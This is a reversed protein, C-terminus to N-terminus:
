LIVAEILKIGDNINTELAIAFVDSFDVTSVRAVGNDSSILRDGKNVSGFVKVPVRGKLAIYIGGDLDKNMMFAPNESIVGIARSGLKCATVEKEGGVMVVTGIDYDADALYKEALDAYQAETATGHFKNAYVDGTANRAVISSPTITGSDSISGSYNLGSVVLTQSVTATGVFNNATINGTGDRVAITNVNGTLSSSYYSSGVKLKDSKTAIGNMINVNIDGNTDRAVISTKDTTTPLIKTANINKKIVAGNEIISMASSNSATGNYQYTQSSNLTLGPKIQDFGARPNISTDLTFTQDDSVTFITTGQVQASIISHSNGATDIVMESQFTTNEANVLQPGVLVYGTTSSYIYLQNKVTDFWFDGETLYSPKSSSIDAGNSTRWNLNKDYFKLKNTSSDFWIQGVLPKTPASVNAFNELLYIFNENQITGYGSYNKGVLSLESTNDITGDEIVSLQTKNYKNIIYSM